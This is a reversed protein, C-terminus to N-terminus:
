VMKRYEGGVQKLIKTIQGLTAHRVTELLAGFVNGGNRAVAELRALHVPAEEVHRAKFDRVRALQREWDAPDPRVVEAVPPYKQPDGDALEHSNYGIIKRIPGRGGPADRRREREYRASNEAICRRQYGLETAPGVGGLQDLRDFEDLVQAQVERMVERFAYSGSLLNQIVFGEAEERLYNAVMTAQRVWKEGPTTMPEDASDVHLSNTNALLGMLAHYGQRLPNLTDWEEAQLARGSTQTHFKFRQSRSPAGYVDRLAIAWIKRCVAGYALWDAEHSVRFFFSFSPAFADVAMGRGRFNELYTFGNALTFALEQVPSAGAEGIHYGSISLSYFKDVGNDIFWQQVDGLLRIAFDTSFINENQAQVEKLIDAQVTGRLARFIGRRLEERELPAFPSREREQREMELESAAVFYMALIVPAPGNITMSTSIEPISFGQLVLKMDEWSDIAVGGEGIKGVSGPDDDSDAGYLTIGDFAISLRPKPVGRALFHLRRNTEEPGRLGAFQRTTEGASATRYPYIGTVFPFEGPLGEELLFRLAEARDEPDPLAVRSLKLGNPTVVTPDIGTKAAAQLSLERWRGPWADLLRACHPDLGAGSPDRRIQQLQDRSWADYVRVRDAIEALYARRRHPVLVNAKAYAFIGAGAPAEPEPWGLRRCLAAFLRQTGPDQAAKSTTPYLADTKGLEALVSGMEAYSAEAGELDVKNLVVLDADRLLQDKQLQLASGYERTKVYLLLDANLHGLDVGTQGTGPTEVLILDYGAGDFAAILRPLQPAIPAYASGTGLSRLWVREHYICNMRVRDALFATVAGGGDLSPDNALIALRREPFTALFHRVLEDILTSKGSGGDGAVIVVKGKRVASGSFGAADLAGAASIATGAADPGGSLTRSLQLAASDSAQPPPFAGRGRDVREILDRAIADLGWGPGYIRAVGGAELAAADDPLITGGGGGFVLTGLGQAALREVLRPYFQLHGGNYSSVAVADAGEQLAAAVIQDGTMNFGLYIVEVPREAALLARNLALISADHGDFAAVATVIRLSRPAM